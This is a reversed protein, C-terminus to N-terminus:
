SVNGERWMEWWDGALPELTDLMQQAATAICEDLGGHKVAHLITHAGALLAFYHRPYVGHQLRSSLDIACAMNDRHTLDPFILSIYDLNSQELACAPDGNDSAQMAQVKARAKAAIQEARSTILEKAISM